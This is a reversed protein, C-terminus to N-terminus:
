NENKPVCSQKKAKILESIGQIASYEQTGM